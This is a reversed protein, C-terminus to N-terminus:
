LGHLEGYRLFSLISRFFSCFFMKLVKPEERFSINGMLFTQKEVIYSIFCKEDLVKLAFNTPTYFDIEHM